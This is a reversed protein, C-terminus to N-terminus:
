PQRTVASRANVVSAALAAPGCVNGTGYPASEQTLATSYLSSLSSEHRNALKPMSLYFPCYICMHCVFLTHCYPCLYLRCVALEERHDRLGGEAIGNLSCRASNSALITPCGTSGKESACRSSIVCTIEPRTRSAPLALGPPHASTSRGRVAVQHLRNEQELEEVHEAPRDVLQDEVLDLEPILRRRHFERALQQPPHAPAANPRRLRHPEEGDEVLQPPGIMEDHATQDAVLGHM